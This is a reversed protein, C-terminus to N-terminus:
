PPDSIWDSRSGYAQYQCYKGIVVMLQLLATIAVALLIVVAAFGLAQAVLPHTTGAACSTVGAADVSRGACSEDTGIVLAAILGGGALVIVIGQLFGGLRELLRASKILENRLRAHGGLQPSATDSM